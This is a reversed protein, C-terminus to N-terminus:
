ELLQGKRFYNIESETSIMIGIDKKRDQGLRKKGPAKNLIRFLHNITGLSFAKGQNVFGM